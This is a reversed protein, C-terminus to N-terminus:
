GAKQKVLVVTLIIHLSNDAEKIIFQTPNASTFMFVIRSGFLNGANKALKCAHNGFAINPVFLVMHHNGRWVYINAGAPCPNGGIGGGANVQAYMLANRSDKTPHVACGAAAM